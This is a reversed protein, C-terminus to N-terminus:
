KARVLAFDTKLELFPDPVYVGLLQESSQPYLAALSLGPTRKIVGVVFGHVLTGTFKGQAGLDFTLQKGDWASVTDIGTSAGLNVTWDGGLDGVAATQNAPYKGYILLHEFSDSLMLFDGYIAYKVDRTIRGASQTVDSQQNLGIEENRGAQKLLGVEENRGIGLPAMHSLGSQVAKAAPLQLKVVGSDATYSCEVDGPKGHIEFTFLVKGQKDFKVRQNTKWSDEIIGEDQRGFMAFWEGALLSPDDSKATEGTSSPAAAGPTSAATDDNGAPVESATTSGTSEGTSAATDSNAPAQGSAASGDAPAPKDTKPCGTGLLMAAAILVLVFLYRM